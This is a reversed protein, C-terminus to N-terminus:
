NPKPADLVERVKRLLGLPTFPKQLFAIGQDLVGHHIIANGTYGSMYLVKTCPRIAEIREALQRGSLQPIVVDTVLIHIPGEEEAAIRLAEGGRDAELITYGNKELVIRALKRVAPEDEVLLVTETGGLEEVPQDGPDLSSVVDEIRPLYIKFVTGQGPESYVWINGGSQKVIGYVTSLGLGTGKGVEKTTFFPEFVHSQTEVDMGHGSDSVALMVYSGPRVAVHNLAYAEDLEVNATEITLKGGKPMADRANVALNMIIQEMQGPDVKIRGLDFGFLTVLEVDEGLVRRLMKDLNAVVENIDLVKPQLVQRRSFALLQRTLDAAVRGAKEIERVNKLLPDDPTMHSAVMGSYGLIATLLNNFDHAIGGALQGIAEMRQSQRLQEELSVERTVDRKVAVFHALAGTADRVPSISAEEEYLTQDKKRNIFHGTWAEGSLLTTWMKQYFSSDHKGSKLVRPNRGIVEKSEYSTVREFAPNVYEIDGQIDTIVIAEAAQEIATALLMREEEALRRETIDNVLGDYYDVQGQDNKRMVITNRIWRVSGDKHLIRHELPPTAEGQLSKAAQEFVAPRDGPPVMRSWLESDTQYEEPTYGTVAVCGPSHTTAVARGNEVKVSYIYDTASSLLQKYRDESERLAEESQKYRTNDTFTTLVAEVKDEKGTFTIPVIGYEYHRLGDVTPLSIEATFPIGKDLVLDRQFKFPAFKLREKLSSASDEQTPYLCKGERDHIYIRIPLASLIRNLLDLPLLGSESFEEKSELLNEPM